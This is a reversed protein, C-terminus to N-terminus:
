KNIWFIYDLSTLSLVQLIFKTKNLKSM